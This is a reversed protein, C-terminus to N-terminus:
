SHGFKVQNIHAQLHMPNSKFEWGHHNSKSIVNREGSEAVNYQSNKITFNTGARFNVGAGNSKSMM